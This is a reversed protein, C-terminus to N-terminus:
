PRQFVKFADPHKSKYKEMLQDMIVNSGQIASQETSSQQETKQKGSDFYQKTKANYTTVDQDFDEQLTHGSEHASVLLLIGAALMDNDLEVGDKKAKLVVDNINQADVGSNLILVHTQDWDATKDFKGTKKNFTGRVKTDTVKGMQANAYETNSMTWGDARGATM